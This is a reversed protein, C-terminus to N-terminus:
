THATLFVLFIQFSNRLKVRPKIDISVQLPIKYEMLKNCNEVHVVLLAVCSKGTGYQAKFIPQIM